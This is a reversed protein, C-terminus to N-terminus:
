ATAEWWEQPWITSPHAGLKIAVEDARDVPIGGQVAWRCVTRRPIGCLESIVTSASGATTVKCDSTMTVPGVYRALAGFPLRSKRPTPM